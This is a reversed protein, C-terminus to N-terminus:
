PIPDPLGFPLANHLPGMVGYIVAADPRLVFNQQLVLRFPVIAQSPAFRPQQHVSQKVVLAPVDPQM